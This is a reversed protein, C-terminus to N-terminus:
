GEALESHLEEVAQQDDDSIGLKSLLEGNGLARRIEESTTAGSNKVLELIEEKTKM